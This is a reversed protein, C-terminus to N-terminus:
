IVNKKNNIRLTNLVLLILNIGYLLGIAIIFTSLTINEVLGIKSIVFLLIPIFFLLITWSIEFNILDKGLKNIDKIKRKKIDM